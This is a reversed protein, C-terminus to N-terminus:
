KKRNKEALIEAIEALTEARRVKIYNGHNLSRMVRNSKFCEATFYAEPMDELAAQRVALPFLDLGNVEETSEIGELFRRITKRGGEIDGAYKQHDAIISVYFRRSAFPIQDINKEAQALAVKALQFAKNHSLVYAIDSLEWLRDSPDPNKKRIREIIEFSKKTNQNAKGREGIRLQALAIPILSWIQSAEEMKETIDLADTIAQHAEDIKGTLFKVEALKALAMTKNTIRRITSFADPIKGTRIQIEAIDYYAWNRTETRSIMDATSLAGSFDGALARDSVIGPHYVSDRDNAKGIREATVLAFQWDGAKSQAEAIKGYAWDRYQIEAILNAIRLAEPIEGLKIQVKAIDLMRSSRAIHSEYGDYAMAEILTRKAAEINGLSAQAGAIKPLIGARDSKPLNRALEM